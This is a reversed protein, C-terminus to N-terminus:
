KLEIKNIKFECLMIQLLIKNFYSKTYATAKIFYRIGHSQNRARSKLSQTKCDLLHTQHYRFTINVDWTNLQFRNKTKQEKQWIMEPAATWCMQSDTKYSRSLSTERNLLACQALPMILQQPYHDRLLHAPEEELSYRDSSRKMQWSTSPLLATNEKVASGHPSVEYLSIHKQEKLLGSHGM